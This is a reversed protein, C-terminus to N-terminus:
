KSVCTQLKSVAMMLEDLTQYRKTRDVHTGKDMFSRIKKDEINAPIKKGSLIYSCLLTLAYIEDLFDYEAFGRTKLSPDNLSGKIESSDSTLDSEPIKVLGFDSIKFINLHDYKKVLVNKMSVDRHYIGKSHLYEFGRIIQAIINKREKFTLLSNNENIFKELTCDMYEMTYENKAENYTYVEVIYPSYFSKMQEFERKFRNLEKDNLDKKARKVAFYKDYYEDRYKFVKAYSGEGIFKLNFASYYSGRKISVVEAFRFIPETYNLKIKEMNPPITSGGSSSLFERCYKIITEYYKNISFALETNKLVSQLEATLDIIFILERSEVAWFHAESYTTPLRENLKRFLKIYGGNLWSFIKKLKENEINQYLDDYEYSTIEHSNLEDITKELFQEINM